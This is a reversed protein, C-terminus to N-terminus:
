ARRLANRFAALDFRRAPGYIAADVLAAAERAEPRTEAVLRRLAFLDGKRAARRLRWRRLPSWRRRLASWAARGTDPAQRALVLGAGALIGAAIAGAGALRAGSGFRGTQVQNSYFSAYGVPLAPIELIDMRRTAANFYPITMAPIVGPEGTEPRFQWVWVVESVPGEATLIVRREVPAAFSILWPESVIPRPPLAEPLTGRALVTVRRTVTEGDVLRSPDTSLEDTLTVQESVWPWGREVPYAGVSLTLPSATVTRDQRQSKEDIITIAHTAPGFHLVGDRKPVLVLDRELTLYPRGDIMEDRWRDPASQIWDFSDSPAIELRERAVKRDYIGRVTVPVMEGVVVTEHTPHPVFSLSLSEALGLGPALLLTAALLARIV